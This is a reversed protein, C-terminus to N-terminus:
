DAHYDVKMVWADDVVVIGCEPCKFLEVRRAKERMAGPSRLISDITGDDNVVEVVRLAAFLVHRDLGCVYLDEFDEADHGCRPCCLDGIDVHPADNGYNGTIWRDLDGNM